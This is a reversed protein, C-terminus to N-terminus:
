SLNFSISIRELDIVNTDVSHNLYSPWLYMAGPSPTIAVSYANNHNTFQKQQHGWWLCNMGQNILNLAGAGEPAQAYFVGSVIGDHLHIQNHSNLGKNINFWSSNVTVEDRQCGYAEFAEGAEQCVWQFFSQMEKHTHLNPKSQFGHNNSVVVGDNQQATLYACMKQEDYEEWQTQFVEVAFPTHKIM